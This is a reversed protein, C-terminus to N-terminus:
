TTRNRLTVTTTFVSRQFRDNFAPVVRTLLTYPRTDLTQSNAESSRILLAISISVVRSWDTVANADVYTDVTVLRGPDAVTDVGYRIELAEAGPIIEQPAGNSTVRWLAPGTADTNPAIYYGISTVPSVRAGPAYTAGLNITTNSPTGAGAVRDITASIDGAGPTFGSVVFISANGCDSIVAPMGPVLSEGVEKEVSMSASPAVVATVRMSPSGAPITRVVIVDNRATASPFLTADLAPAWTGSTGEFGAVPQTLNWAVQTANALMNNIAFLGAIPQACGPYGAGRLDRLMLEIAARGNEQLRGTRENEAYTVKSSYMVALVGALVILSLTLAVMIEVLSFGRQRPRATTAHSHPMATEPSRSM